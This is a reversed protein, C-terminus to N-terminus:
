GCIREYTATAPAHFGGPTLDLVHQSPTLQDLIPKFDPSKNGVIVLESRSVIEAGDEVMLSSLHPIREEIFSRNTGLLKSFSVCPDHLRIEFGKGLLTEILVVVPSERLDDTGEKFAFGLVGIRKRGREAVVSVAQHIQQANSELISGLMPVKLGELAALRTVARLDKPLCSGGFAFGPKLYSPSINLKKDACFVRMVEASDVGRNKCVLGIENAFTAKLAHFINDTYKVMEAVGFPTIFLEGPLGEYLEAVCQAAEKSSAGLVTKPPHYFDEIASGERLFEPNYVVHFGQGHKKESAKELEPIVEKEISGPLMTSRVVVIHAESKKALSSGIEQCVKLVHGLELDGNKKSPTGVCVMSIQTKAVAAAADDCGQLSGDDVAKRVIEELDKELIPSKGSRLMAVKDPNNDVGLVSHGNKALCASVVTGVYGLGFISIRM